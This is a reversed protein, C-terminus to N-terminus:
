NTEYEIRKNWEFFLNELRGRDRRRGINADFLLRYDHETVM